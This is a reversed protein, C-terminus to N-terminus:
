RQLVLRKRLLNFGARGYMQRKITKLKNIQGEVQGNSWPFSVANTVATIDSLLGKAFSKLEKLNTGSVEDIWGQLGEGQKNELLKRFRNVYLSTTQIDKSKKKLNSILEREEMSLQKRKRYLLLSVKRASWYPMSSSSITPYRKGKQYGKLHEYFVSKSGKYGREKVENWLQIIEVEPEERLRSQIYDVYGTLNSRAPIKPPPENLHLYKKVTNRSAGVLRAITRIPVGDKYYKRMQEFQSFRKPLSGYSSEKLAQNGPELYEKAAKVKTVSQPKMSQRVRELLKTLADGMNKILHWRDAIQLAQPAGKSVGKAYRAFRDRTVIKIDPRQKLWDEVTKAERDPLLDIIKRSTLDIIATGYTHGKRYAWDDIGIENAEFNQPFKQKHILRIFTSSSTPINLTQSLKSGMNGGVLLAIKLLKKNLRNTTRSYKSFTDDLSEVFIKRICSQNECYFKRCKLKILVKNEFVPLDRFSRYYYSHLKTAPINCLPCLQEVKQSRMFLTINGADVKCDLLDYCFVDCYFILNQPWM